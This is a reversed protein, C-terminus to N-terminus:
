VAVTRAFRTRGAADIFDLRLGDPAFACALFGHAGSVFGPRAPAGPQYTESGTGSTVYAVGGLAVYQMTHDHGNIYIPVRHRRLVPDIAAILDPQDHERGGLATYIPHHGIVIRRQATSRALAADLWDRQARPHQDAIRTTTGLYARIFPSTDLCFFEVTTGDGVPATHTYTRAPLHWRPSVRAYDLQAAVNGRYDHNGLIVHWPKQLSPAAYIREFSTQWQPDRVSAVGNEYFNDGASVIFRPDRATSAAAMADAVARQHHAGDRGWDGIVFFRLPAAAAAAPLPLAALAGTGLLRRRSLTM